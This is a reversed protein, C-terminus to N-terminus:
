GELNLKEFDLWLIFITFYWHLINWMITFFPVKANWNEFRAAMSHDSFYLM